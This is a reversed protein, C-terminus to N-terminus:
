LLIGEFSSGDEVLKTLFEQAFDDQVDVAVINWIFHANPNEFVARTIDKIPINRKYQFAEEIMPYSKLEIEKFLLYSIDSVM